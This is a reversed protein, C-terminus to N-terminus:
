TPIIPSCDRCRRAYEGLPFAIIHEFANKHYLRNILISWVAQDFRHCAFNEKSTCSSHLKPDDLTVMCGLVLACAIWPKLLYNVENASPYLIILTAEFIQVDKFLCPEENLFEFTDKMTRSIVKAKSHPSLAKLKKAKDLLPDINTTTFRISADLWVVFPHEKIM